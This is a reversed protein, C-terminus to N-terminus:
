WGCGSQLRATFHEKLFFELKKVRGKGERREIISDRKEEEELLLLLLPPETM